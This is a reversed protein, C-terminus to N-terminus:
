ILLFFKKKFIKQINQFHQSIKIGKMFMITKWLLYFICIKTSFTYIYVKSVVGTTTLKGGKSFLLLSAYVDLSSTKLETGYHRGLSCSITTGTAVAFMITGCVAGHCFWFSFMRTAYADVEDLCQCGSNFNILHTKYKIESLVLM